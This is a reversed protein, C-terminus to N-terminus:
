DTLETIYAICSAAGGMILSARQGPQVKYVQVWNVPVPADATSSAQSTNGVNYFKVHLPTTSFTSANLIQVARTQTGFATTSAGTASTVALQQTSGDVIFFADHGGSFGAM